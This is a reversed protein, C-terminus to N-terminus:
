WALIRQLPLNLIGESNCAPSCNNWLSCHSEFSLCFSQNTHTYSNLLFCCFTSYVCLSIGCSMPSYVVRLSSRAPYARTQMWLLAGSLLVSWRKMAQPDADPAPPFFKPKLHYCHLQNVIFLLPWKVCSSFNRWFANPFCLLLTPM